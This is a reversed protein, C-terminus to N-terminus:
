EGLRKIKNSKVLEDIFIFEKDFEHMPSISPPTNDYYHGKEKKYPAFGHITVDMRLVFAFYIISMLGTSLYPIKTYTHITKIDNRDIIYLKDIPIQLNREVTISPKSEKEFRAPPLFILPVLSDVNRNKVKTSFSAGSCWFTTKSGIYKEYGELVYDNIRAVYPYSDIVSGLEKELISPSNGIIVIQNKELVKDNFLQTILKNNEQANKFITVEQPIRKIPQKRLDKDPEDLPVWLINANPFEERTQLYQKEFNSCNLKEKMYIDEGKVFEFGAMWIEDYGELIAQHVLETGTSWGRYKKFLESGEVPKCCVVRYNLNNKKKFEIAEKAMFDHVSAVLSVRSNDKTELYAKNCVWIEDTWKSIFNQQNLRETANGFVMVKKM